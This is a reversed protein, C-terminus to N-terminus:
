LELAVTSSARAAAWAELSDWATGRGSPLLTVRQGLWPRQVKGSWAGSVASCVLGCLVTLVPLTGLGLTRSPRCCPLLSSPAPDPNMPFCPTDPLHEPYFVGQLAASPGCSGCARILRVSSLFTRRASVGWRSGQSGRKGACFRFRPDGDTKTPSPDFGALPKWFSFFINVDGRANTKLRPM